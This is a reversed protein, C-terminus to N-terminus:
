PGKIPQKIAGAPSGAEPERARSSCACLQGGRCGPLGTGLRLGQQAFGAWFWLRCSGAPAAGKQLNRGGGRRKGVLKCRAGGAEWSHHTQTCSGASMNPNVAHGPRPKSLGAPALDRGRQWFMSSCRM